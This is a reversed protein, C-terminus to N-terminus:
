HRLTPLPLPMRRFAEFDPKMELIVRELLAPLDDLYYHVGETNGEYSYRLREFADSGKALASPLDRPVDLGFKARKDWEQQRRTAIESDWLSQIRARSKPTIQDFLTRLNHGRSANGTEICIMCKLFLETTLAGLVISPEIVTLEVHMNEPPIARIVALTQHFCCAQEFIKEPAVQRETM